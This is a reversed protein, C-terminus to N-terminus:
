RPEGCSLEVRNRRREKARYLALDARAMISDTETDNAGFISIGVSITIPITSIDCQAPTDAVYTRLREAFLEAGAADTGPLLIGFEEGGLRGLLDIRRLRQKTLGAFHKLVVDGAAHGYTIKVAALSISTM